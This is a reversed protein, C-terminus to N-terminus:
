LIATIVGVALCAPLGLLMGICSQKLRGYGEFVPANIVDAIPTDTTYLAQTNPSEQMSDTGGTPLPQSSQVMSGQPQSSCAAFCFVLSVLVAVFVTKSM